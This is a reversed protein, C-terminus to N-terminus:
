YPKYSWDKRMIGMQLFTHHAKSIINEGKNLKISINFETILCKSLQSTPKGLHHCTNNRFYANFIWIFFRPAIENHFPQRELIPIGMIFTQSDEKWSDMSLSISPCMAQHVWNAHYCWAPSQQKHSLIHMANELHLYEISHTLHVSQKIEMRRFFYVGM